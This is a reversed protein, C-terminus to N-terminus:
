ERIWRELLSELQNLPLTFIIDESDLFGQSILYERFDKLRRKYKILMRLIKLRGEWDPREQRSKIIISRKRTM